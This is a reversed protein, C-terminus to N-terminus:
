RVDHNHICSRNQICGSRGWYFPQSDDRVKTLWHCWLRRGSSLGWGRTVRCSFPLSFIGRHDQSVCGIRLTRPILIYIGPFRFCRMYLHNNELQSSESDKCPFHNNQGFMWKFSTTQPELYIYIYVCAFEDVQQYLPSSQYVILFCRLHMNNTGKLVQCDKTGFSSLWIEWFGILFETVNWPNGYSGMLMKALHNYDDIWGLWKVHVHHNIMAHLQRTTFRRRWRRKCRRLYRRSAYGGRWKKFAATPRRTCLRPIRRIEKFM